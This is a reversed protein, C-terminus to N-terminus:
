ISDKQDYKELSIDYVNDDDRIQNNALKGEVNLNKGRRDTDGISM